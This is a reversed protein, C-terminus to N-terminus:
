AAPTLAILRVGSWHGSIFRNSLNIEHVAGANPLCSLEDVLNFPTLVLIRCRVKGMAAAITEMAARRDDDQHMVLLLFDCPAAADVPQGVTTFKVDDRGLFRGVRSGMLTKSPNVDASTIGAVVSPPVEFPLFGERGNVVVVNSDPAVAFHGIAINAARELIQSLQFKQSEMVNKGGMHPEGWIRTEIQPDISFRFLYEWEFPASTGPLLNLKRLGEEIVPVVEHTMHPDDPARRLHDWLYGTAPDTLEQTLDLVPLGTKRAYKFLEENFAEVMWKGEPNLMPTGSFLVLNLNTQTRIEEVLDFCRRAADRIVTDHDPLVGDEVAKWTGLLNKFHCSADANGFVILVLSHPDTRRVANWTVRKTAEATEPTLFSLSPGPALMLPLFRTGSTFSRVFSNGLVTVFECTNVPVRQSDGELPMGTKVTGSKVRKGLTEFVDLREEFTRCIEKLLTLAETGQGKTDFFKAIDLTADPGAIAAVDRAFDVAAAVGSEAFIFEAKQQYISKPRRAAVSPAANM